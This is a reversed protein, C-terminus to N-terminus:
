MWNPLACLFEPRRPAPTRRGPEEIVASGPPGFSSSISCGSVGDDLSGKIRASVRAVISARSGITIWMRARNLKTVGKRSLKSGCFKM